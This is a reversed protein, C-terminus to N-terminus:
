NTVFPARVLLEVNRDGIAGRKGDVSTTEPDRQPDNIGLERSLAALDLPSTPNAPWTTPAAHDLLTGFISLTGDRNDVIEVIRSQQPWDVHSATNIEWFGGGPGTARAHPTVTNRHTHGNVWVVVNPFQLLLNAVTTGNVRDTGIVNEMTAVTHHSFIAILQDAGNGQVWNGSTDLYRESHAKLESTLWDVQAQDLSGDDYGNPNVSDLVICRVSGRTFAYYATGAAVNDQTYGHGVPTGTTNFHEAVTQARTLTRRNPDATVVKLPGATLLLQLAATNGAAVQALLASADVGTPLGTVKVSGTAIASILEPHPVNGQVLGDHNGFTTYWPLTLGTATFPARCANLLNAVTPFGYTARYNDATGLVPTGGPHWYSPDYDDPGGVGEWKAYSGSDPRIPQRGDLLDIQWRLENYQTNDANDGTCIAFDLGRGTVPAAPLANIARVMAEAVHASLMEQPRYSSQFPAQSATAQGPDNLRDLFEVRAPSQADVIHMDTLQALALVSCRSGSGRTAGGLLDGRVLTAEGAGVVVQRYGGSGPAGHLRTQALTTGQPYAPWAPLPDAAAVPETGLTGAAAVGAAAAASLGLLRRRSLGRPPAPDGDATANSPARDDDM